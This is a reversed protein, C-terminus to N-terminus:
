FDGFLSESDIGDLVSSIDIDDGDSFLDRSSHVDTSGQGYLPASSNPVSKNFSDSRDLTAGPFTTRKPVFRSQGSTPNSVNEPNTNQQRLPDCNQSIPRPLSSYSVGQRSSNNTVQAQPRTSIPHANSIVPSSNSLRPHNAPSGKTNIISPRVFGSQENNSSPSPISVHSTVNSGRNGEHLPHRVSLSHVSACPLNSSAGSCTFNNSNRSLSPSMAGSEKRRKSQDEWSNVTLLLQNLTWKQVDTKRVGGPFENNLYTERSIFLYLCSNCLYIM